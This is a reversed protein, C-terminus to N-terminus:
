WYALSIQTLYEYSNSYINNNTRCLLESLTCDISCFVDVMHYCTVGNVVERRIPIGIPKAEIVVLCYMCRYKRGEKIKDYRDDYAKYALIMVKAAAGDDKTPSFTTVVSTSEKLEPLQVKVGSELTSYLNHIYEDYLQQM